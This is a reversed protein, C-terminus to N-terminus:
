QFFEEKIYAAFHKITEEDADSFLYIGFYDEVLEDFAKEEESM